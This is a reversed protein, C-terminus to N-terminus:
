FYFIDNIFYFLVFYDETYIYIYVLVPIKYERKVSSDIVSQHQKLFVGVFGGQIWLCAAGDPPNARRAVCNQM